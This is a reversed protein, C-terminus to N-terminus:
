STPDTSTGKRAGRKRPRAPLTFAEGSGYARLVAVVVASVSQEDDEAARAIAAHWVEDPVRVAHLPTGRYSPAVTRGRTPVPAPATM